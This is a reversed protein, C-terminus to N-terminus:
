GHADLPLVGWEMNALRACFGQIQAQGVFFDKADGLIESPCDVSEHDPLL